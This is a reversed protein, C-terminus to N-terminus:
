HKVVNSVNGSHNRSEIGAITVNVKSVAVGTMNQVAGKVSEQVSRSVTPIKTGQTVIVQVDITATDQNVKVSIPPIIPLRGLWGKAVYRGKALCLVGRTEKVAQAAVGAIVEKSVRLSGVAVNNKSNM